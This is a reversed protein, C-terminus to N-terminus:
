GWGGVVFENYPLPTKEFNMVRKCEEPVLRFSEVQQLMGELGGM